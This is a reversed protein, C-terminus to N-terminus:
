PKWYQQYQNGGGVTCGLLSIAKFYTKWPYLKYVDHPKLERGSREGVVSRRTGGHVSSGLLGEWPEELNEFTKKQWPANRILKFPVPRTTLSNVSHLDYPISEVSRKYLLGTLQQVDSSNTKFDIAQNGLCTQRTNLQNQLSKISPKLERFSSQSVCWLSGNFPSFSSM